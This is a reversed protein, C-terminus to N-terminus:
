KAGDCCYSRLSVTFPICGQRLEWKLQHFVEEVIRWVRDETPDAANGHTRVTVDDREIPPIVRHHFEFRVTSEHAGPALPRRHEFTCVCHTEIRLAIEPVHVGCVVDDITEVRFPARD